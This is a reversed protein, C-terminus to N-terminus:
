KHAKRVTLQTPHSSQAWPHGSLQAFTIGPLAQATNRSPVSSLDGEAPHAPAMFQHLGQVAFPHAFPWKARQELQSRRRRRLKSM